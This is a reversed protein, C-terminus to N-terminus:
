IRARVAGISATKLQGTEADVQWSLCLPEGREIV